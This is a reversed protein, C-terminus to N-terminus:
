TKTTLKSPEPQSPDFNSALIKVPKRKAKEQWLMASVMSKQWIKSESPALKIRGRKGLQNNALLDEHLKIGNFYNDFYIHHNKGKIKETLKCVIKRRLDVEGNAM